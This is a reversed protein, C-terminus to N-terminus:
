GFPNKVAGPKPPPPVADPLDGQGEMAQAMAELIAQLEKVLALGAKDRTVDLNGYVAIREKGNEITLGGCGISASDDAFPQLRCKTM